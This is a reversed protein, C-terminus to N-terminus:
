TKFDNLVTRVAKGLADFTLPKFLLKRIGMAQVREATLTASYGTTLIIPLDARIAHIKEALNTGTMRPMMQDTVVLDYAEPNASVAALAEAASTRTDVVYGLRELIKKAMIALPEEDDVYLIREGEGWPASTSQAAAEIEGEAHKPFYLQFTTGEGVQSYVAVAGDHNQMIGHVVALGLGTGEGPAKTTFFPEFIRRTTAEDMGSGTDSVSLRVYTGTRLDPGGGELETNVEFKELRVILRGPRDKMAHAANTCLNMVVQHIQSADALVNPMVATISVDFEITTPITARLLLLAEGVVERLQISKRELVQQRSFALIQRVLDTARKAGLLVAELYSLVTVNGPLERQALETYGTIAALVNNFDHAIGGALTGIAEMKQAQRFQEELIKQGTIDQLIAVFYDPAEGPAWMASVTLNVWVESLDNRVYRKERTFERITGARLRRIMERDGEVDQPHTIEAFTVEGLEQRSRGVIECYRQNVQIFRGTIADSQAVGVAAQEFLAKFRQESTRLADDARKQETIDQIAGQVQWVVGATNRKAEGIARVWVQRKKATVIELELDFSTGREACAEFASSIAERSQPAYFGIAETVEPLTGPPMDHIACAEDSWVVGGAPVSVTWGGMRATRGAIRLLAESERLNEEAIRREMTAWCRGVVEEVLAVEGPKWVRPLTQHVAMLARLVGDKVLPCSIIAKIGTVIFMNAGEDPLLEAEVDHIILTQGSHLKAVARPGFLPLQYNGRISACGDTYDHLVTFREGDKEVDAYACRSAGLHEGLLRCMVTMIQEPDVLSRTAEGLENLFRFHEESERLAQETRKRQTIDTHVGTWQFVTGDEGMIPVARVMMNHYTRDRALLRHEMAYLSRNAVALSWVRATEAQDDPHIAKLWGWGRLEEFSQGTFATWRPQAAEFEGSDPTDWVIATTAEVLLRYRQEKFRGEREAQKRGTIIQTFFILGGIKGDAQHWPRAEWQLWEISGDIRPFADEDCREVAGALVRQHIDRWHQPVDPFIEYHSKGIIEQGALHYDQVWRKSAQIYRMQTDLMAIAAPAHEIFLRLLAENAALNKETQKRETIDRIIKSVGVIKGGADKIPSITTSVDFAQGNKRLRVTELYRISQGRGFGSLIDAEENLRDPPILVQMPRGIMEMATYGFMEEAAPNWATVIGDLTKGLIADASSEVIAALRRINEDLRRHETIDHATGVIKLAGGTKEDFFIQATEQVVREEGDPRIFRHVTSYQKRDRIATVVAQKIMEHEEAPVISFFLEGTVEVAGPEIGAICFMENSWRVTNAHIDNADILDVEWSGFHGICQAAAMNAQSFHLDKETRRRQTIDRAVISVGIVWGSADKIPSATVSFDLVKGDRTQLVTEFHGVNEGRRIKELIHHHQDPRDTPNLRLVSTGVMESATYGFINEAGKNWSTVVSRLDKGIIADQSSEIVAALRTSDMEGRKRATIDVHMVVAGNPAGGAMPAVTLLFWRQETTSHCPYEISFSKESGDLVTRIGAAVRRAEFSYGGRAHDCVEVYNLGVGCDRIGMENARGFKQWAENVSIIVGQGDLLAIHAPLANLIAAQKVTESLRMQEQARQLLFTRGDRGAVADVEGATLEVLRRETALLTDILASIEESTVPPAPSQKVKM